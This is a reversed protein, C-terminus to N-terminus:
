QAWLLLLPELLKDHNDDMSNNVILRCVDILGKRSATKLPTDGYHDSPNKNQVSKMILKCIDLHGREAAFHLPTLGCDTSPNKDQTSDIILRCVDIHGKVAALHLPTVGYNDSPNRDQEDNLHGLIVKCCDVQGRSAAAHLPTVGHEDAPNKDTAKECILKLIGTMGDRAARQRETASVNCWLYKSDVTHKWGTSVKRCKKLTAQDLRQFISEAIHPLYQNRIIFPFETEM